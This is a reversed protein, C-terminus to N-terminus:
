FLLLVLISALLNQTFHIGWSVFLNNSDIYAKALFCGMATYQFIYLLDSVSGLQDVVHLSGFFLGSVIIFLWKTVFLKSFAMRFVSEEVFPAYITTLLLTLLPIKNFMGNIAVQNPSVAGKKFLIIPVSVIIMVGIMSLYTKLVYSIYVKKNKIFVLFSEKIEKFFLVIVSLFMIVYTVVTPVKKWFSFNPLIFMLLMFLIMILVSKVYDMTTKKKQKVNPLLVEKKDSITRLFLFGFIGSVISDLFMYISCIIIKTRNKKLVNMDNFSEKFMVISAFIGILLMFCNGLVTDNVEKASVVYYIIMSLAFVFEIMSAIKLYIRKDKM